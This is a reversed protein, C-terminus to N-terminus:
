DFWVEGEQEKLSSYNQMCYIYDKKTLGTLLQANPSFMNHGGSQRVEEYDKWNNIQQQTHKM